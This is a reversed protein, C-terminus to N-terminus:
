KDKGFLLACDEIAQNYGIEEHWGNFDAELKGLELYSTKLICDKKKEMIMTHLALLAVSEAKNVETHYDLDTYIKINNDIELIKDHLDDLIERATQTM